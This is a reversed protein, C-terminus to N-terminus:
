KALKEVLGMFEARQEEPDHRLAPEILKTVQNWSVNQVENSERLKMGTLAVAAAFQFDHGAVDMSVPDASVTQSLLKSADGDPQKYRLKLTFWDKSAVLETQPKEKAKQYKLADIGNANPMPKGVPTIEYFATVTHGAGIDGADVKDNNFDEDKLQRNAYGILRYAKVKGPNFEVQIKVDKAITVLTGTLNKLFVREAEADTDIYFYNGNGDNSIAELMSDNLNGTGLGLVSLSVGKEAEEKVLNVLSEDGTLGVNFDGDTALIVRNVGGEIMGQAALQYAHKIGAGGNTSGGAKLLNIAAKAKDRGEKTLNTSDLVVGESGAYVVIAVKDREDLQDLLLNMSRNLLPLKRSDSMSGSVDILFVLNSAPRQQNLIEKGQIAVRALFHDKNWPCESLITDFAFPVESTPQKYDYSFYNIMEEIRVADAQVRQGDLITRRINTYSATDVDVSFTSLPAVYPTKWAQDVLTSYRENREEFETTGAIESLDRQRLDYGYNQEDQAERVANGRVLRRKSRKPAPPKKSFSPSPLESFADDYGENEVIAPSELSLLEQVKVEAPEVLPRTALDRGVDFRSTQTRGFVEAKGGEDSVEYDYFGTQAEDLVEGQEDQLENVALQPLDIEQKGLRKYMGVGLVVAAAAPLALIRMWNKSKPKDEAIDIAEEVSQLFQEDDGEGQKKLLADIMQDESKM